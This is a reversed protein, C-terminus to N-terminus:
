LQGSYHGDHMFPNCNMLFLFVFCNLFIFSSISLTGWSQTEEMCSHKNSSVDGCFHSKLPAAAAAAASHTVCDDTEAQVRDNRQETQVHRTQSTWVPLHLCVGAPCWLCLYHSFFLLFLYLMFIKINIISKM